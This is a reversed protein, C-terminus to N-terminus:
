APSRLDRSAFTLLRTLDPLGLAELIIDRYFQKATDDSLHIGGDSGVPPRLDGAARAEWDLVM